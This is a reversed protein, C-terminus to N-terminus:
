SSKKVNITHKTEGLLNMQLFKRADKLRGAKRPVEILTNFTSIDPGIGHM